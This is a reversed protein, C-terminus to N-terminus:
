QPPLLRGNNRKLVKKWRNISDRRRGRDNDPHYGHREGTLEDLAMIAMQRVAARDHDLLEVLWQSVGEDEVEIPSIGQLLRVADDLDRSPLRNSLEKLVEAQAAVSQAATQRLGSIAEIRVVEERTALATSTLAEVDRCVSLVAAANVAVLPNRHETLRMAAEKLSDATLMETAMMEAASNISDVPIEDGNYVWEPIANLQSADSVGMDEAVGNRVVWRAARGNGIEIAELAGVQLTANGNVVFVSVSVDNHIPLNEPRDEADREQAAVDPPLAFVAVGLRAGPGALQCSSVVDGHILQLAAPEGEAALKDREVICRGDYVEIGPSTGDSFRALCPGLLVTSWGATLPTVTARYPASLATLDTTLLDHWDPKKQQKRAALEWEEGVITRTMVMDHPADVAFQFSRHVAAEPEVPSANVAPVGTVPESTEDPPTEGVATGSAMANQKSDAQPPPVESSEEGSSDAASQPGDPPLQAVGPEATDGGDTEDPEAQPTDLTESEGEPLEDAKAPNVADPEGVPGEDIVADRNNTEDDMAVNTSSGSQPSQWPGSPRLILFLWLIMLVALILGPSKPSFSRQPALPQWVDQDADATTAKSDSSASLQDLEHDTTEDPSRRPSLALLRTRLRDNLEVPDALLGLIQHSAAVEALSYDASLVEKEIRSVLEPTLQDDLYEAILNPDITKVNQGPVALRRQRVVTSIRDALEQAFPSDKLKKGIERANSSSLRDDLYALLTRLTLRM